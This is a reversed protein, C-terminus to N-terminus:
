EGEYTDFPFKRGTIFLGVCSAQCRNKDGSPTYFRHVKGGNVSLYENSAQHKQCIHLNTKM